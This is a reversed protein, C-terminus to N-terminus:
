DEEAQTAYESWIKSLMDDSMTREVLAALTNHTRTAIWVVAPGDRNEVAKALAEITDVLDSISRLSAQDRALEEMTRVTRRLAEPDGAFWALVQPATLEHQGARVSRGYTPALLDAPTTGLAAALALLEDVRVDRPGKEIRLVGTPDIRLGQEDLAEALAAQSLGQQQRRLKVREGLVELAEM